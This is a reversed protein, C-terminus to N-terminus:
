SPSRPSLALGVIRWSLFGRRQLRLTLAGGKPDAVLRAEFADLDGDAYGERATRAGKARLLGTLAEPTLLAEPREGRGRGAFFRRLRQLFSVKRPPAASPGALAAALVPSLNARVAPMDTLAAVAGTDGARAASELRFITYYPSALYIGEGAAVLVLVLAFLVLLSRM